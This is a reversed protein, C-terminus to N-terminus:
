TMMFQRADDDFRLGRRTVIIRSGTSYAIAFRSLFFYAKTGKWLKYMPSKQRTPDVKGLAKADLMGQLIQDSGHGIAM